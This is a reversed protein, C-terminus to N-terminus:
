ERRFSLNLFFFLVISLRITIRAGRFHSATGKKERKLRM